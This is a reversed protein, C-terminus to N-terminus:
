GLVIKIMFASIMTALAGIGVGSLCAAICERRHYDRSVRDEAQKKWYQLERQQEEYQAEMVGLDSSINHLHKMISQSAPTM